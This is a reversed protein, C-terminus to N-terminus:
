AELHSWSASNPEAMRNSSGGLGAFVRRLPHRVPARTACPILGRPRPLAGAGRLAQEAREVRQREVPSYLIAESLREPLGFPAQAWEDMTVVRPTRWKRRVWRRAQEAADPASPDVVPTGTDFRLGGTDISPDVSSAYLLEFWAVLDFADLDSWQLDAQREVHDAQELWDAYDGARRWLSKPAGDKRYRLAEAIQVQSYGDRQWVAARSGSLRHQDGERVGAALRRPVSVLGLLPDGPDVGGSAALRRVLTWIGPAGPRSTAM